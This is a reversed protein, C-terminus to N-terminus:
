ASSEITGQSESVNTGHFDFIVTIFYMTKSIVFSKLCNMWQLSKPVM